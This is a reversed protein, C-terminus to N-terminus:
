RRGTTLRRYLEPLRYPLQTIDWLISYGHPGFMRPLYISGQRDITLCFLHIDQLRAEAVAQRTDEIGYTGEYEDEDNPKGDSLLFLLRLRARQRTLHATLHRIPAGLRTYAQTHLGAIRQRVVVGYAETFGKVRRVHVQRAGRSAFAYIAYQDGLAELAECFVLAAEKELDLVRSGGSVWADTSGSADILFAVAVDRRRPRDTLYLRDTPLRGARRSAFDDVYADLDLEAGDLQQTDRRRKPRLAEFRRRIEHILTYHERLM